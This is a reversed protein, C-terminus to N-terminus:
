KRNATMLSRIRLRLSNLKIIGIAENYTKPSKEEFRHLYLRIDDHSISNITKKGHHILFEKVRSYDATNTSKKRYSVDELYEKCFAEVSIRKEGKVENRRLKVEYEKKLFRALKEDATKLSKYVQKGTQM